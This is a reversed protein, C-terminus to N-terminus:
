KTQLLKRFDSESIVETGYMQAQRNKASNSNPTDTILYKAKKVTGEAYGYQAFEEFLQNRPKSLKGTIAIYVAENPDVFPKRHHPPSTVEVLQSYRRIKEVNNILGETVTKNIGPITRIEMKWLQTVPDHLVLDYSNEAVKSAQIRSIGRINCACLFTVFDVPSKLKERLEILLNKQGKGVGQVSDWYEEMSDIKEYLSPVDDIEMKEFLNNRAEKNLHKVPAIVDIWHYLDGSQKQSCDNNPCRLFAGDVELLSGCFECFEPVNMEGDTVVEQIDPIVEGSRNIVVKSGIGLNNEVVFKYNFATARSVMAQSLNVPNFEIVPNLRGSRSYQWSVNNVTVIAGKAEMKYAVECKPVWTGDDYQEYEISTLIIGDIPYTDYTKIMTRLEDDTAKHKESLVEFCDFGNQNLWHWVLNKNEIGQLSTGRVTYAVFTMDKLEPVSIQKRMMRGVCLNRNSVYDKSYKENFTENDMTIEGRVLGTFSDDMLEVPVLFKMKDTVDFGTVGDGRTIAYDLKGDTYYCCISGGDYKPSLIYEGKDTPIASAEKIKSEFKAVPFKHPLEKQTDCEVTYGWGVTHLLQNDPDYSRLQEVLLDFANDSIEPHGEYYSKAYHRIKTELDSIETSVAM